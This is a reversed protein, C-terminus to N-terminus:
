HYRLRTKKATVVKYLMKRIETLALTTGFTAELAARHGAEIRKALEVEQMRDLLQFKGMERMYVKVSDDTYSGGLASLDAIEDDYELDDSSESDLYDVTSYDKFDM